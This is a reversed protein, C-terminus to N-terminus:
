PLSSSFFSTQAKCILLKTLLSSLTTSTWTLLLWNNYNLCMTLISGPYRGPLMHLPLNYVRSSSFIVLMARTSWGPQLYLKWIGFSFFLLFCVHAEGVYAATGVVLGLVTTSFPFISTIEHLCLINLRQLIPSVRNVKRLDLTKDEAYLRWLDAPVHKTDTYNKTKRSKKENCPLHSSRVFTIQERLAM